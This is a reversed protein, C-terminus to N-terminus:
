KGEVIVRLIAAKAFEIEPSHEPFPTSVVAIDVMEELSHLLDWAEEQSIPRREGVTSKDTARAVADRIALFAEARARQGLDDGPSNDVAYLLARCGDMLDHSAAMLHGDGDCADGTITAIVTGSGDKIVGSKETYTWGM